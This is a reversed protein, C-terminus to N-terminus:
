SSVTLSSPLFKLKSFVSLFPRFLHLRELFSCIRVIINVKLSEGHLIRGFIRTYPNSKFHPYHEYLWSMCSTHATKLQVATASKAIFLLYWFIHRTMMFELCETDLPHPHHMDKLVQNLMVLPDRDESFRSMNAHSESAPYLYWSYGYYTTVRIDRCYSLYVLNFYFDESIKIDMFRIHHEKILSHKYLRGWPSTIRCPAYPYRPDLQWRGIIKGGPDKLNYGCIAIDITESENMLALLREVTDSEMEDDQDMFMIYDGTALDIGENRTKCIGKNERSQIHFTMSAPLDEKLSQLTQESEDTSGDNIAILEIHPYTQSFVCSISRALFPAGNYVPIIISVIPQNM